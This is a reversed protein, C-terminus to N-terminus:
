TAIKGARKLVSRNALKQLAVEKLAKVDGNSEPRYAGDALLRGPGESFQTSASIKDLLELFPSGHLSAVSSRGLLAVCYRKILSSIAAIASQKEEPTNLEELPVAQLQARFERIIEARQYWLTISRVACFLVALCVIAILWWGPAPPWWGPDAPLHIDRLNDIPNVPTKM